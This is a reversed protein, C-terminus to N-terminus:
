HKNLVKKALKPNNIAMILMDEVKKIKNRNNHSRVLVLSCLLINFLIVFEYM